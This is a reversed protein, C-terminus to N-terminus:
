RAGNTFDKLTLELTLECPQHEHHHFLTGIAINRDLPETAGPLMLNAKATQTEDLKFAHVAWRLVSNVVTSPAFEHQETRHEFHVKVLVRQARHAVLAVAHRGDAHEFEFSHAKDREFLLINGSPLYQRVLTMVAEVTREIEATLPQRQGEVEIQIKLLSM